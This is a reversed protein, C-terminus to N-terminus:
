IALNGVFTKLDAAKAEYDTTADTVEGATPTVTKSGSGFPNRFEVSGADCSTKRSLAQVLSTTKEFVATLQEQTIM